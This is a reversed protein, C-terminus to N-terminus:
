CRQYLCLSSISPWMAAGTARIERLAFQSCGIGCHAHSPSVLFVALDGMCRQEKVHWVYVDNKGTFPLYQLSVM